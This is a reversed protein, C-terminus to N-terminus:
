KDLGEKWHRWQVAYKEIWDIIADVGLDTGARESEIWKHKLIELKQEEMDKKLREQRWRHAHHTLWDRLANEEGVDYGARESLYYRHEDIAHQEAKSFNRGDARKTFHGMKIRIPKGCTKDYPGYFNNETKVCANKQYFRTLRHLFGNITPFFAAWYSPL